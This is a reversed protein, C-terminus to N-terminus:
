LSDRGGEGAQGPAARRGSCPWVDRHQLRKTGHSAEAQIDGAYGM